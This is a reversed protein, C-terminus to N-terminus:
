KLVLFTAGAGVAASVICYTIVKGYKNWWSQTAYYKIELDKYSKRWESETAMGHTEIRVRKKESIELEAELEKIKANKDAIKKALTKDAPSPIFTGESIEIKQGTRTEIVGKVVEISIPDALLFIILLKAIM